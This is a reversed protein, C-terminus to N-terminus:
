SQRPRQNFNIQNMYSSTRTNEKPGIGDIFPFVLKSTPHHEHEGEMLLRIEKDKEDLVFLTRCPFTQNM